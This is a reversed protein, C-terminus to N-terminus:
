FKTKYNPNSNILNQTLSHALSKARITLTLIHPSLFASYEHLTGVPICICVQTRTKHPLSWLAQKMTMMLVYTPGILGRSTKM